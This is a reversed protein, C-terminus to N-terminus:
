RHSLHLCITFLLLISKDVKSLPSKYPIFWVFLYTYFVYYFYKKHVNRLFIVLLIENKSAMMVLRVM